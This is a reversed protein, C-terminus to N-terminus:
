AVGRRPGDRGPGTSCNIGFVDIGMGGITVYAAEIPTGLLMKGYQPLTANVMVPLNTSKAASVALKMELLDNGTEVLIADVGGDALGGAQVEFAEEIGDM